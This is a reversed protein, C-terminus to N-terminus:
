TSPLLRLVSPPSALKFDFAEEFLTMEHADHNFANSKVRGLAPSTRADPPHTNTYFINQIHQRGPRSLSFDEFTVGIKLTFIDLSRKFVGGPLHIM